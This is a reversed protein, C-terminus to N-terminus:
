GRNRSRNPDFGNPYRDLRKAINAEIVDGLTLGYLQMIRVMYYFQDGLEETVEEKTLDHGQYLYKGVTNALEGAEGALKLTAYGLDADHSGQSNWTRLVDKEYEEVYVAGNDYDM